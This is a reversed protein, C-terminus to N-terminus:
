KVGLLGMLEAHKNEISGKEKKMGHIMIMYNIIDADM